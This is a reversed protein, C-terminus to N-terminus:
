PALAAAAASSIVVRCFARLPFLLAGSQITQRNLVTMLHRGIPRLRLGCVANVSPFNLFLRGLADARHRASSRVVSTHRSLRSLCVMRLAVCWPLPLDDDLRHLSEDHCGPSVPSKSPKLGDNLPLAHALQIHTCIGSCSELHDQSPM